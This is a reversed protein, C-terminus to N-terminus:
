TPPTRLGRDYEYRVAVARAWWTDLGFEEQLHHLRDRHTVDDYEREYVDLVRFWEPWGRGTRNMVAAESISEYDPM